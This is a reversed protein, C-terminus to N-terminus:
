FPVCNETGSIYLPSVSLGKRQLNAADHCDGVDDELGVPVVGRTCRWTPHVDVVTVFGGGMTFGLSLWFSFCLSQCFSSWDWFSIWRNEGEGLWRSSPEGLGQVCSPLVCSVVGALPCSATHQTVWRYTLNVRPGQLGSATCHVYESQTLGDMVLLDCHDLTILSPVEGQVRRRVQFEVSRGLSMSAILKPKNQPGFLSENDSHWPICSVSGSYRNLNM